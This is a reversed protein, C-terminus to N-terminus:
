AVLGEEAEVEPATEAEPAAEEVPAVEAPETAEPANEFEDSMSHALQSHRGHALVM